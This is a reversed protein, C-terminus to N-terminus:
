ESPCRGLAHPNPNYFYLGSYEDKRFSDFPRPYIDLHIGTEGDKLAPDLYDHPLVQVRYEFDQADFTFEKFNFDCDANQHPECKKIETSFHFPFNNNIVDGLNNISLMLDHSTRNVVQIERMFDNYVNIFVNHDFWAHSSALYTGDASLDYCDGHFTWIIPDGHASAAIDATPSETPSPTPGNTPVLTPEATPQLSPNLTPGLSPNLTPQSTPSSTPEKSTTPDQTPAPTPEVSPEKTPDITPTTSPPYTGDCTEVVRGCPEPGIMDCTVTGRCFGTGTSPCIVKPTLNKTTYPIEFRTTVEDGNNVAGTWLIDMGKYSYQGATQILCDDREGIICEDDTEDVYIIQFVEHEADNATQSSQCVLNSMQASVDQCSSGTQMCHTGQQFRWTKSFGANGCSLFTREASLIPDPCEGADVSFVCESDVCVGRINRDLGTDDRATTTCATGYEKGQLFCADDSERCYATVCDTAQSTCAGQANELISCIGEFQTQGDQVDNPIVIISGSDTQAYSIALVLAFILLRM